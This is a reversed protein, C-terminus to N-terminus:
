KVECHGVRCSRLDKLDEAPLHLDAFDELKPKDGIRRTIRFAGGSEFHEIDKLAEVYRHIPAGIWVAGFVAIEDKSDVKLLRAVAGGGALTAREQTTLKVTATLYQELQPPLTLTAQGASTAIAMTLVASLAMSPRALGRVFM